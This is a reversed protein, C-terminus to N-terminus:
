AQEMANWGCGSAWVLNSGKLRIFYTGRNSEPADDGPSIRWRELDDASTAEWHEARSQASAESPFPTGCCYGTKDRVLWEKGGSLLTRRSFVTFHEQPTAM